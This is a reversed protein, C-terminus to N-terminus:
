FNYMWSTINGNNCWKIAKDLEERCLNSNRDCPIVESSDAYISLLFDLSKRDALQGLAWVAHNKQRYDFDDSAVIQILADTCDGEFINIAEYCATKVDSRMGLLSLTFFSVGILVITIITRKLNPKYKYKM